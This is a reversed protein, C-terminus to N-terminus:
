EGGKLKNLQSQLEAIRDLMTICHGLAKEHGVVKIGSGVDVGRARRSEDLRCEIGYLERDQKILELIMDKIQKKAINVLVETKFSDLSHSSLKVTYEVLEPAKYCTDVIEKIKKRLEQDNMGMTRWYMKEHTTWLM